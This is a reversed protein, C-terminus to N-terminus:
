GALRNEVSESMNIIMLVLLKILYLWLAMSGLLVAWNHNVQTLQIFVSRLGRHPKELTLSQSFYRRIQGLMLQKSNM